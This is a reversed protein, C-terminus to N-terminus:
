PLPELRVEADVLGADGDSRMLRLSALGYGTGHESMELWPMLAGFAVQEFRLTIDTGTPRALMVLADRLGAEGLGAELASLGVPTRGQGEPAPADPAPLLALEAQRAGLWLRLAEAEAVAARAAEQRALLPLALGQVVAIPLALGVLLALMLRERRSLGALFQMLKASM